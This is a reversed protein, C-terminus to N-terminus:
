AAVKSLDKLLALEILMRRRYRQALSRLTELGRDRAPKVRGRNWGKRTVRNVTGYEWLHAHPATSAVENLIVRETASKHVRIGGRLNGTEGLPYNRSLAAATDDTAGDIIIRAAEHLTRPVAELAVRFEQLNQWAVNM